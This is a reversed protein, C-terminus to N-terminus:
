QSSCGSWDALSLFANFDKLTVADDNDIDGDWYAPKSSWGGGSSHVWRRLFTSYDACDVKGDGDFDAPDTDRVLAAFLEDDEGDYLRQVIPVISPDSAWVVYGADRAEAIPHIGYPMFADDPTQQDFRHPTEMFVVGIETTNPDVRHPNHPKPGLWGTRRFWWYVAFWPARETYYQDIYRKRNVKYWPVAEGGLMLSDFAPISRLALLADPSQNLDPDRRSANDFWIADFGAEAWPAVNSYIDALSDPDYPDMFSMEAEPPCDWWTVDDNPNDTGKDDVGGQATLCPSCPEWQFSGIFVGMQLDPAPAGGDCGTRKCAIWHALENQIVSKQADTLHHYQSQNVKWEGPLSGGPRQLVIRRFGADFLENLRRELTRWDAEAWYPNHGKPNPVPDCARCDDGCYLNLWFVPRRDPIFEGRGGPSGGLTFGSDPGLTDCDYLNPCPQAAARGAIMAACTIGAILNANVGHRTHM